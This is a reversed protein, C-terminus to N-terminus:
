CQGHTHTYVTSVMMSIWDSLPKLTKAMLMRPRNRELLSLFTRHTPIRRLPNFVPPTTRKLVIIAFLNVLYRAFAAHIKELLMYMYNFNRAQTDM